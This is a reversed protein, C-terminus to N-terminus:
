AGEEAGEERDDELFPFPNWTYLQDVETVLKRVYSFQPLIGERFIWKAAAQIGRKKILIERIGHTGAEALM